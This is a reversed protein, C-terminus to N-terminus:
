LSNWDRRWKEMEAKLKEVVPPKQCNDGPCKHTTRRDERHFRLTDAKLDMAVSLIALAAIANDRVQAGTGDDYGESQFDGM